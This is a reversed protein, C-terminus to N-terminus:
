LECVWEKSPEGLIKATYGSMSRVRQSEAQEKFDLWAMYDLGLWIPGLTEPKDPEFYWHGETDLPCGAMVVRSYGMELGALAAFLSSSGHLRGVENTIAQYNYDPQQVDWDCDFGDVEGMTHTILGNKSQGKIQKAWAIATEGDANFWHHAYDNCTKIARGIAGYDAQIDWEIFRALDTPMSRGDGLVILVNNSRALDKGAKHLIAKM